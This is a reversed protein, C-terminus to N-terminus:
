VLTTVRRRRGALLMLGGGVLLVVGLAGIGIVAVGTGALGGGGSATVTIAEVGSCGAGEVNITHSGTSTGAPITVGVSYAGTGDATTTKLVTTGDLSITIDAGPTCSTGSVTLSGGPAPTTTSVSVPKTASGTVQFAATADDDATTAEIEHGGLDVDPVTITATFNGDGDVSASGARVYKSHFSLTVDENPTFNTGTVTVDTGVPGSSPSASIQATGYGPAASAPTAFLATACLLVAAILAPLTRGLKTTM